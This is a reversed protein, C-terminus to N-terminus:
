AFLFFSIKDVKVTSQGKRNCMSRLQSYKRLLVKKEKKKRTGIFFVSFGSRNIKKNLVGRYIRTGATLEEM